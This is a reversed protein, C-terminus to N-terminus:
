SASVRDGSVKWVERVAVVAAASQTSPRRPSHHSAYHICAGLRCRTRKPSPWPARLKSEMPTFCYRPMNAREGTALLLAVPITIFLFTNPNYPAPRSSHSIRPSLTRSRHLSVWEVNINIEIDNLSGPSRWVCRQHRGLPHRRCPIPHLRCCPINRLTYSTRHSYKNVM